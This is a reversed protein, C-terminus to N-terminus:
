TISILRVQGRRRLHRATLDFLLLLVGSAIAGVLLVSWDSLTLDFLRGEQLMIAGLDLYRPWIASTALRHAFGLEHSYRRPWM